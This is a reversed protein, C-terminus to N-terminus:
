IIIRRLTFIYYECSPLVKHNVWSYFTKSKDLMLIDGRFSLQQMVSRFFCSLDIGKRLRYQSIFSNQSLGQEVIDTTTCDTYYHFSNNELEGSSKTYDYFSDCGSLEYSSSQLLIPDSSALSNDAIIEKIGFFSLIFLFLLLLIRQNAKM